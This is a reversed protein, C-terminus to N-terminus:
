IGDVLFECVSIHIGVLLLIKLYVIFPYCRSDRNNHRPLPPAQEERFYVCISFLRPLRFAEGVPIIINKQLSRRLSAARVPIFFLGKPQQFTLTVSDCRSGRRDLFPRKDCIFAPSWHDGRRFLIFDVMPVPTGSPGCFLSLTSAIGIITDQYPLPKSRGFFLPIAYKSDRKCIANFKLLPATKATKRQKWM